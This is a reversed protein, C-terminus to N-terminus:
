APGTPAWPAGSGAVLVAGEPPWSRGYSDGFHEYPAGGGLSVRWATVVDDRWGCPECAVVMAQVNEPWVWVQGCAPEPAPLPHERDIRALDDDCERGPSGEGGRHPFTPGITGDARVWRYPVIPPMTLMVPGEAQVYRWWPREPHAGEPMPYRKAIDTWNM